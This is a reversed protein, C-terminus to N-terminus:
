TCLQLPVTHVLTETSTIEQQCDSALYRLGEDLARLQHRGQQGNWEWAACRPLLKYPKTHLVTQMNWNGTSIRKNIPIWLNNSALVNFRPPEETLNEEEMKALCM